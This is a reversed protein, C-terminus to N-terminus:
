TARGGRASSRAAAAIVSGALMLALAMLMLLSMSSTGTDSLEDDAGDGPTHVPPIEITVYGLLDMDQSYVALRHQGPSLSQVDVTVSGSAVQHTGLHTPQSYAIVHVWEGDAVPINSIVVTTGDLQGVLDGDGLEALEDGTNPVQDRWGDPLAPAGGTGPEGPRGPQGPQGPEGPQGPLESEAGLLDRLAAELADAAADVDDQTPGGAAIVAQAESLRLGVLAAEESGGSEGDVASATAVLAHLRSLDASWDALDEAADRRREGPGGPTQENANAVMEMAQVIRVSDAHYYSFDQHEDASTELQITVGGGGRDMVFAGYDQAARALARGEPTELGLDDIDVDAPIALLSGMPVTGDPGYGDNTDFTYAPWSISEATMLAPPMTVALAHPIAFEDGEGAAVLEHLRVKGAYNPLLSATRGNQFGTGASRPDTFSAIQGMVDGEPTVVANYVELVLGNPQLIAMHGDSDGSPGAGEPVYVTSTWGEAIDRISSPQVPVDGPVVTAYANMEQLPTTSGNARVHDQVSPSTLVSGNAYIPYMPPYVYLTGRPDSATARFISTSWVNAWNVGADTTSLGPVEVYDAGDGISTNWPSDSSFFQDYPDRGDGTEQPVSSVLGIIAAHLAATASDVQLQRAASDDAAATASTIATELRSWSLATYDSEDLNQALHLAALLASTDVDVIPAEELAEFAAALGTVADDVDDQSVNPDALVARAHTLAQQYAALSDETYADPWITLGDHEAIAASLMDKDAQEGAEGLFLLSANDYYVENASWEEHHASFMITFTGSSVEIDSVTYEVYEGSVVSDDTAVAVSGLVVESDPGGALATITNAADTTSNKVNVWVSFEYPGNVLNTFTHHATADAPTWYSGLMLCSWTTGSPDQCDWSVLGSSAEETNNEQVTWFTPDEFSPDAVLNVPETDAQAPIAVAAIVIAALAAVTALM